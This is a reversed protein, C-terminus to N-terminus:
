LWDEQVAVQVVEVDERRLSLWPEDDVRVADNALGRELDARPQAVGDAIGVARVCVEVEQFLRIRSGDEFTADVVEGFEKFDVARAETMPADCETGERGAPRVLRVVPGAP